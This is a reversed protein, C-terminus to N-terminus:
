PNGVQMESNASSVVSRSVIQDAVRKAQDGPIAFGLGVSGAQGPMTALACNVGILQGSM